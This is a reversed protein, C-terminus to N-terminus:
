HGGVDGGCDHSYGHHQRFWKVILLLCVVAIAHKFQAMPGGFLEALTNFSWLVILSALALAAAAIFTKRFRDHHMKLGKM